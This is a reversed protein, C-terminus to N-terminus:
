DHEEHEEHESEGEGSCSAPASSRGCSAPAGAVAHQGSAGNIVAKVTCPVKALGEKELKWFGSDEVKATGLLAGSVADYVSVTAGKSAKSGTVRLHSESDWVASDIQVQNALLKDICAKTAVCSTIKPDNDNCDKPGCSGGEPSYGDKDKDTCPGAPHTVTITVTAPASTLRGKSITYTFSDTGTFFGSKPAYSFSGVGNVNFVFTSANSPGTAVKAGLTGTGSPITDNALVGPVKVTLSKGSQVTYSDPKAVLNSAPPASVTVSVTAPTLDALGHNDTVTLSVTFTGTNNFTVVPNQSTATSGPSFVANAGFNWSYTVTDGANPDTFSGQFTVPQGQVINAPPTIIGNPAQNTTPPASVIVNVTAPTTDALGQNDTVTLSVTFTGTSNFTVAPNQSTATSGPSFVANAGFNWSYTVTDGANPDTFSGQFTVSQGQVINAPPTIIGNPAQNAPPANVAVTRTLSAGPAVTAVKGDVDKVTLTATIPTTVNQVTVSQGTQASAGNSFSWNYTLPLGDPDTANGATFTVPSGSSVSTGAPPASISANTPATKICYQNVAIGCITTSGSGSCSTSASGVANLAPVPNHCENCGNATSPRSQQPIATGAPKSGCWSNLQGARGTNAFASGSAATLTLVALIYTIRSILSTTNM